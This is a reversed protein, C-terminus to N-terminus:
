DDEPRRDEALARVVGARMAALAGPTHGVWGTVEGIVRLPARSRYSRSPNGPFKRDTLEPDDELPGTAEVLYVRPAGKGRALEAGWIAADLTATCFVWGAAHARPGFNPPYGPVILAGLRLAARTGHLFAPVFPRPAGDHSPLAVTGADSRSPPSDGAPAAHDHSM